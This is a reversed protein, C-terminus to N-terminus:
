IEYIDHQTSKKIIVAVKSPLHDENSV